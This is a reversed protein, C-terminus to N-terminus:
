TDAQVVLLYLVTICLPIVTIALVGVLLYGGVPGITVDTTPLAEPGPLMPSALVLGAVLGALMATTTGVPDRITGSM